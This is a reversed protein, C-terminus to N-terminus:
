GVDGCTVIGLETAVRPLRVDHADNPVSLMEQAAFGIGLRVATPYLALTRDYYGGGYGLRRGARDFALLPVLFWDPTVPDGFPHVTGFRGAVLAQGPAWRRFTLAAGPPPTMPLALDYGAASLRLLLPRIDIEGPLPWFGAVITGRTPPSETMVIEALRAGEAPDCLARRRV